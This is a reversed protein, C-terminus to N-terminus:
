FRGGVVTTHVMAGRPSPVFAVRPLGLRAREGDFYVAHTALDPTSSSVADSWATPAWFFAAAASLVSLSAGVGTAVRQRPIFDRPLLLYTGGLGLAAASAAAAITIVSRGMPIEILPSLVLAVQTAAGGLTLAAGVSFDLRPSGNWVVDTNVPIAALAFLGSWAAIQTGLTVAFVVDDASPRGWIGVTSGIAWGTLGAVATSLGFGADDLNAALAWGLGGLGGTVSSTVVGAAASSSMPGFAEAAGLAVGGLAMAGVLGAAGSTFVSMETRAYRSARRSYTLVDRGPFLVGPLLGGAMLGMAASSVLFVRDGEAPESAGPHRRAAENVGSQEGEPSEPTRATTPPASPPPKAQPPLSVHRRFCGYRFDSLDQARAAMQLMQKAYEPWLAVLTSAARCAIADESDGLADALLARARYLSDGSIRRALAMMGSLCEARIRADEDHCAEFVLPESTQVPLWLSISIALARIEPATPATAWAVLQDREVVSLPLGLALRGEWERLLARPPLARLTAAEADPAVTPSAGPDADVASTEEAQAARVVLLLLVLLFRSM